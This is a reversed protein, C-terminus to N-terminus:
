NCDNKKGKLNNALNRSFRFLPSFVIGTLSMESKFFEEFTGEHIYITETM